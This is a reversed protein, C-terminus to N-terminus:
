LVALLFNLIVDVWHGKSINCLINESYSGKSCYISELQKGTFISLRPLNRFNGEM